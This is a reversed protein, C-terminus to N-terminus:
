QQRASEAVANTVAAKGALDAARAVRMQMYVIILPLLLEVFTLFTFLANPLGVAVISMVRALGGLFFTLMLVYVITSKREVGPVCWLLAAGFALFMTAYFRDESDMTANVAISGPISSPGVIIHVLAIVACTAGVAALILQLNRRM